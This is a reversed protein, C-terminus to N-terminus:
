DTVQEFRRWAYNVTQQQADQWPLVAASKDETVPSVAQTCDEQCLLGPSQNCSLPHQLVFILKFLGANTCCPTGSLTSGTVVDALSNSPFSNTVIYFVASV